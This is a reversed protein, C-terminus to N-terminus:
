RVLITMGGRRASVFLVGDKFRLSVSVRDSDWSGDSSVFRVSSLNEEGTFSEASLV